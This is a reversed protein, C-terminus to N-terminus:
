CSLLALVSDEMYGGGTALVLDGLNDRIVVGVGVNSGNDFISADCNLKLMYVQLLYDGTLTM